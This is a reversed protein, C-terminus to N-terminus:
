ELGIWCMAKLHKCKFGDPNSGVTMLICCFVCHRLADELQGLPPLARLSAYLTKSPIINAKNLTETKQPREIDAKDGLHRWISGLDKMQPDDDWNWKSRWHLDEDPRKVWSSCQDARISGMARTWTGKPCKVCDTLGFANGYTGKHLLSPVLIRLSCFVLSFMTIGFSGSLSNYLHQREQCTWSHLICPKLLIM